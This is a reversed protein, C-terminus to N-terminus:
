KKIGQATYNNTKSRGVVHYGRNQLSTGSATRDQHHLEKAPVGALTIHNNKFSRTVCASAGIQIGNALHVPGIIVANAGLTCDDGLVIDGASCGAKAGIINGGTLTLNKGIVSMGSVVVGVSPHLVILGGKIDAKYHIDLNSYAQLLSYLPILPVRLYPYAPGILVYLGREMRYLLVGWFVRSIWIHVLRISHRGLMRKVDQVFYGAQKRM